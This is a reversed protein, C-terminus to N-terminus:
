RVDLVELGKVKHVGWCYADIPRRLDRFRMEVITDNDSVRNNIFADLFLTDLLSENIPKYWVSDVNVSFGCGDVEYPGSWFIIVPRYDVVVPDPVHVRDECAFLGGLVLVVLLRQTLM